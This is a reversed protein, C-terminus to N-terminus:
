VGEPNREVALIELYQQVGGVDAVHQFDYEHGRWVARWTPKVGGRYRITIRVTAEAAAQQAALFERGSIAEVKAWVTAVARWRADPDGHDGSTERLPPSQLVIRQNFESSEIM